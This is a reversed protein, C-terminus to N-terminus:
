EVRRKLSGKLKLVTCGNHTIHGKNRKDVIHDAGNLSELLNVSPREDIRESGNMTRLFKRASSLDNIIRDIDKDGISIGGYPKDNNFKRIDITPENDGWKMVVVKKMSDADYLKFIESKIEEGKAM